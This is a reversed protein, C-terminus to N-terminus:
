TLHANTGPSPYCGDDSGVHVDDTGINNDSDESCGVGGRGDDGGGGCDCVVLVTARAM